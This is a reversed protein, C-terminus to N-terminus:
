NTQMQRCVTEHLNRKLRCSMAVQSKVVEQSELICIFQMNISNNIQQISHIKSHIHTNFFRRNLYTGCGSKDQTKIITVILPCQMTVAIWSIYHRRHFLCIVDMSQKIYRTYYRFTCFVRADDWIVDAGDPVIM